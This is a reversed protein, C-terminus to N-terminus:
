PLIFNNEGNKLEPSRRRCKIIAIKTVSTMPNFWPSKKKIIQRYITNKQHEKTNQYKNKTKINKSTKKQKSIKQHKEHQETNITENELLSDFQFIWKKTLVDFIINYWRTKILHSILSCLSYLIRKVIHRILVGCWHYLTWNLYNLQCASGVDSYSVLLSPFLLINTM